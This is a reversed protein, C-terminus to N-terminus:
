NNSPERVWQFNEKDDPELARVEYRLLADNRAYKRYYAKIIRECVMCSNEYNARPLMIVYQSASCRAASDGRRLSHQIADEVNPMVKEIKKLPLDGHKGVASILAIHVAIGSRMISRAMSYYLVRFFDYECVLAGLEESDERLQSQLTEISITYSNHTKVAEHYVARTAESPIVGLDSLLRASLAEYIDIAKKQKGYALYTQMYLCHIEENYPEIRSAISCFRLAENFRQAEIMQPVIRQLSRIFLNHYYSAIPMVWLESSMKELFDGQYLMLLNVQEDLSLSSNELALQEFEECDIFVEFADNWCYGDGSSLILQKGAGDWLNDLEARARYLLTKLAGSPNNGVQNEGWLRSILENQKIVNGRHYVLYAILSWVKRSRNNTNSINYNTESISFEGLMNIHLKNM